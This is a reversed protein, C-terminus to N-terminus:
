PRRGRLSALREAVLSRERSLREGEAQEVHRMLGDLTRLRRLLHVEEPLHGSGRLLRAAPRLAAPLHELPDPPLPRGTGPLGSLSGRRNSEEIRREVLADLWDM